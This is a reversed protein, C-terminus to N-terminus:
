NEAYKLNIYTFRITEKPNYYDPYEQVWINDQWISDEFYKEKEIPPLYNILLQGAYSDVNYINVELSSSPQQGIIIVSTNTYMYSYICRKERYKRLGYKWNEIPINLFRVTRVIFNLCRVLLDENDNQFGALNNNLRNYMYFDRKAKLQNLDRTTWFGEDNTVSCMEDYINCTWEGFERNVM